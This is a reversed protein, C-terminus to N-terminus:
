ASKAMKLKSAKFDYHRLATSKCNAFYIILLTKKHNAKQGFLFYMILLEYQIEALMQAFWKVLDNTNYEDM